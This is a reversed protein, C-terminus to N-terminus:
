ATILRENSGPENIRLSDSDRKGQKMRLSLGTECLIRTHMNSRSPNTQTRSSPSWRIKVLGPTIRGTTMGFYLLTGTKMLLMRLAPIGRSRYKACRARHVYTV